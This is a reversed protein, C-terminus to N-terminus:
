WILTLAWLGGSTSATAVAQMPLDRWQPLVFRDRSLSVLLTALSVALFAIWGLLRVFGEQLRLGLPDVVALYQLMALWAAIVIYPLLWSRKSSVPELAAHVGVLMLGVVFVYIATLLGALPISYRGFILQTGWLLSALMLSLMTLVVLAYQRVAFLRKRKAPIIILPTCAATLCALWALAPQRSSGNVSLVAIPLIWSCTLCLIHLALNGARKLTRDGGGLM